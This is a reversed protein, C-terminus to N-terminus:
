HSSVPLCSLSHHDPGPSLWVPTLVQGKKCEVRNSEKKRGGPKRGVQEGEREGM